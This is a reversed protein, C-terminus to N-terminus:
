RQWHGPVFRWQTGLAEWQDDIWHARGHEVIWSGAVWRYDHGSWEWHGSAWVYGDRRHGMNEARLPPPPLDTIIEAAVAPAARLLLIGDALCVALILTIRVINM